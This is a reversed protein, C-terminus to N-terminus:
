METIELGVGTSTTSQRISGIGFRERFDKYMVDSNVLNTASTIVAGL